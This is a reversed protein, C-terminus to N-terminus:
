LDVRRTADLADIRQRVASRVVENDPTGPELRAFWRIGDRGPIRRGVFLAPGGELYGIESRVVSAEVRKRVIPPLNQPQTIAVSLPAQDRLLDGDIEATTVTLVDDRWVAKSVLEWGIRRPGEAFPWWLGLNTAVVASATVAGGADVAAWAVVREERALQNVIEAPPRPRRQLFPM